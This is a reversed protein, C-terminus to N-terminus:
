VTIPGAVARNDHFIHLQKVGFTKTVVVTGCDRAGDSLKQNTAFAM